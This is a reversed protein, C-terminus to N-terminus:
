GDINLSELIDLTIEETATPRGLEAAMDSMKKLKAIDGIIEKIRLMLLDLQSDDLVSAAGRTEFVGANKRQHDAAAFPYPILISPKGYAAIESLTLAGARAVILDAALYTSAMDGIFGRVALVPSNDFTDKLEDYHKSGTQWIINIDSLKGAFESVAKNISYSGQSGGTIFVTRNEPSLGYEALVDERKRAHVKNDIPNGTMIANKGKLFKMESGPFAYYIRKAWLSAWRQTIGPHSNQEQLFLPIGLLGAAISYPGSAFGGTSIVALPRERRFVEMAKRVAGILNFPFRFFECGIKRPMPMIDLTMLDYGWKPVIESEMGKKGGM